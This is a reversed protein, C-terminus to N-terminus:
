LRRLFLTDKNYPATPFFDVGRGRLRRVFACSTHSFNTCRTAPQARHTMGISGRPSLAERTSPPTQRLPPLRFSYSYKLLEKLRPPRPLERLSPAEGKNVDGAGVTMGLSGRPARRIVRGEHRHPIGPPSDSALPDRVCVPASQFFHARTTRSSSPFSAIRAHSSSPFSASRARLTRFSASRARSSM